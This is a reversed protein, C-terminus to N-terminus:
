IGYKRCDVNSKGKKKWSNKIFFGKEMLTSAILDLLVENKGVTPDTRRRTLLLEDVVIRMEQPMRLRFIHEEQTM